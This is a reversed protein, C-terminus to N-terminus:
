TTRVLFSFRWQDPTGALMTNDPHPDFVPSGNLGVVAHGVGPYRPSPGSIIHYCDPLGPRWHYILSHQWYAEYGRELLFEEILNYFEYISGKAVELFHPVENIPLELISAVCARMCDGYIRPEDQYLVQQKVPIM